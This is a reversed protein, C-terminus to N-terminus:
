GESKLNMRTVETTVISGARPFEKPCQSKTQRGQHKSKAKVELGAVIRRRKTLEGIMERVGQMVLALIGMVIMSM